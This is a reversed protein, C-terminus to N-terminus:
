LDDVASLVKRTLWQMKTREVRTCVFRLLSPRLYAYGRFPSRFKVLAGRFELLLLVFLVSVPFLSQRHHTFYQKLTRHVETRRFFVCVSPNEETAGDNGVIFLKRFM